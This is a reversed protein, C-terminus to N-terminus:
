KGKKINILFMSAVAGVMGGIIGYKIFAKKFFLAYGMGTVVGISTGTVVGSAIDKKVEINFKNKLNSLDKM